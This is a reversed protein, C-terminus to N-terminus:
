HSIYLDEPTIRNDHGKGDLGPIVLWMSRGDIGDAGVDLIYRSNNPGTLEFMSTNPVRCKVFAAAIGNETKVRVKTGAVPKKELLFKRKTSASANPNKIRAQARYYWLNSNFLLSHKLSKAKARFMEYIADIQKEGEATGAHKKLLAAGPSSDQTYLGGKFYKYIRDLLVKEGNQNKQFLTEVEEPKIVSFKTVLDDALIEETKLANRVEAPFESFKKYKEATKQAAQNIAALTANEKKTKKRSIKVKGKKLKTLLNKEYEGDLDNVLNDLENSREKAEEALSQVIKNEATYYARRMSPSIMWHFWNSHLEPCHEEIRKRAEEHMAFRANQKKTPFGMWKTWEPFGAGTEQLIRNISQDQANELEEPSSGKAKAQELNAAEFANLRDQSPSHLFILRPEASLRLSKKIHM